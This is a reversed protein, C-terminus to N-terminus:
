CIFNLNDRCLLTSRRNGLWLSILLCVVHLSCNCHLKKIVTNLDERMDISISAALM